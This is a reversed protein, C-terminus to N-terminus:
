PMPCHLFVPIIWCIPATVNATWSMARGDFKVPLESELQQVSVITRREATHLGAFGEHVERRVRSVLVLPPASGNESDIVYIGM